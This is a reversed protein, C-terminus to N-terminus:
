EMVLFGCGLDDNFYVGYTGDKGREVYAKIIKKM